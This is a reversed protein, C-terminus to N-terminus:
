KDQLTNIYITHKKKKKLCFVAYSIQDHSSNLRTSKRDLTHRSAALRWMSTSKWPSWFGATIVRVHGFRILVSPTRPMSHLLHLQSDSGAWLTLKGNVRINRPGISKVGPAIRFAVRWVNAGMPECGM